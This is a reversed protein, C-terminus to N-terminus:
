RCRWPTSTASASVTARWRPATSACGCRWRRRAADGDSDVIRYTLSQPEDLIAFRPARDLVVRRDRENAEGTVLAHLPATFGLSAPNEPVDAVIGDTILFAGSMQEPPVDDVLKTLQSFLATGDGDPRDAADVERM